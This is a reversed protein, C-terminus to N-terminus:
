HPMVLSVMVVLHALLSLVVLLTLLVLLLLSISNYFSEEIIDCTLGV